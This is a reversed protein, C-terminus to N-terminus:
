IDRLVTPADCLLQTPVVAGILGWSKVEGVQSSVWSHQHPNHVILPSLDYPQGCM